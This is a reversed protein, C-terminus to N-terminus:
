EGFHFEEESAEKHRFVGYDGGHTRIAPTAPGAEEDYRSIVRGHVIAEEIRDSFRSELM